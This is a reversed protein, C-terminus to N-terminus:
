INVVLLLIVLASLVLAGILCGANVLKRWHKPLFKSLATAIGIGAIGGLSNSILDTIDSAGIAFIFQAMEFLLSTFIIPLIRNILPKEEWLAHIFIGLPIFALANQIIESFSIHGNVIVSAGFPILNVTLIRALMGPSFAMKFVIIWTLMLLYFCLLGRTLKKSQM